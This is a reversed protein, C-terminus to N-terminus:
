LTKPPILDPKFEEDLKIHNKEKTQGSGSEEGGVPLQGLHTRLLVAADDFSQLGVVLLEQTGALARLHKPFFIFLGDLAVKVFSLVM